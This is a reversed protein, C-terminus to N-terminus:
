QGKTKKCEQGRARKGEQRDERQEKARKDTKDTKKRKGIKRLPHEFIIDALFPPTM